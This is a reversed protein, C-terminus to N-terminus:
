HILRTPCGQFLKQMNTLLSPLYRGKERQREAGRERERERESVRERVWRCVSDCWVGEDVGLCLCDYM